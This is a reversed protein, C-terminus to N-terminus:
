IAAPPVNKATSSSVTVGPQIHRHADSLEATPSDVIGADSQQLVTLFHQVEAANAAIMEQIFMHREYDPLQQIKQMFRVRKRKKAQRDVYGDGLHDYQHLIDPPPYNTYIIEDLVNARNAIRHTAKYWGKLYEEYLKNQRTSIMINADLAQITQLLQVHDADTMEHQYYKRGARTSMPYPPDLYIFDQRTISQKCRQMLEIASGNSVLTQEKHLDKRLLAEVVDPNMDLLINIEAPKKAYYLAGTGVFLEFYRKHYPIRNIFFQLIGSNNKSGPYNTLIDAM